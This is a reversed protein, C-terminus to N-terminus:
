KKNLKKQIVEVAKQLQNDDEYEITLQNAVEEDLEVRVDPEIGIGHINRGNPTFYKSVTVKIATGDNLPLISQVIGKGFSTTGVLTGIGYDQIAGAFVESASASNGNILVALPKTFQEENTSYEEDCRGNKDEQYVILGEPLMRDLMDVVTELRGGPNDRLDIVLGKMGQKELSDIAERFQTSTVKDFEAVTIYGIKDELMQSTVTPYEIQARKMTLEKQELKEGRLITIKVETGAEGKMQSVVESLDSDTVDKGNVKIIIDGPLMGAESAPSGEFPKVITIVRTKANQSVRAGIGCYIGSSSEMMQKFEEATYYCSYQDDLSQLLGKYIGDALKQDDVENLFYTDILAEIAAIKNMVASPKTKTTSENKSSTQTTAALTDYILSADSHNMYLTVVLAAVLMTSIFGALFGPLFNNKKVDSGVKRNLYNKKQRDVWNYAM